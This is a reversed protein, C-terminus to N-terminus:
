IQSVAAIERLLALKLCRSARPCSPLSSMSVKLFPTPFNLHLPVILPFLVVWSQMLAVFSPSWSCTPLLDLSESILVFFFFCFFLVILVISRVWKSSYRVIKGMGPPMAMDVAHTTADHATPAAPPAPAHATIPHASGMGMAVPAGMADIMGMAHVSPAHTTPVHVTPPAHPTPPLHVTGAANFQAVAAGAIATYMMTSKLHALISWAWLFFVFFFFLVIYIAHSREGSMLFSQFASAIQDAPVPNLAQYGILVDGDCVCVSCSAHGAGFWLGFLDCPWNQNVDLKAFTDPHSLDLGQLWKRFKKWFKKTHALLGPEGSPNDTITLGLKLLFLNSIPSLALVYWVSHARSAFCLNRSVYSPNIVQVCAFGKKRVHCLTRADRSPLKQVWFGLKHIGSCQIEFAWHNVEL